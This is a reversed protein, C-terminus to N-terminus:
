NVLHVWQSFVGSSALGIQPTVVGREGGEM